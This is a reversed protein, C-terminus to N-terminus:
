ADKSRMELASQMMALWSDVFKDLQAQSVPVPVEVESEFGETRVSLIIKNKLDEPVSFTRKM